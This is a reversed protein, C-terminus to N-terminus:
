HVCGKVADVGLYKNCVHDKYYRWGNEKTRKSLLPESNVSFNNNQVMNTGEM